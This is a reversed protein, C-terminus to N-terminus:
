PDPEINTVTGIPKWDQQIVKGSDDITPDWFAAAPGTWEGARTTRATIVGTETPIDDPLDGIEFQVELEGTETNNPTALFAEGTVTAHFERGDATFTFSDGHQLDGLNAITDPIM